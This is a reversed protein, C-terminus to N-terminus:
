TLSGRSRRWAKMVSSHIEPKRMNDLWDGETEEPDPAAFTM